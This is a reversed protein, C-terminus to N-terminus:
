MSRMKNKWVLNSHVTKKVNIVICAHVVKKILLVVSALVALRETMNHRERGSKESLRKM